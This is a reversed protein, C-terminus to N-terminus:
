KYYDIFIFYNNKNCFNISKSEIEAQLTQMFNLASTCVCGLVHIAM